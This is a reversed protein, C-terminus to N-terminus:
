KTGENFYYLMLREKENRPDNYWFLPQGGMREYFKKAPVNKERIGVLFRKNPTNEVVKQWISRINDSNRYNPSVFFISLNPCEPAEDFLTFMAARDGTPALIEYTRSRDDFQHVELDYAVCAELGQGAKAHYKDLFETDQAFYYMLTEMLRGKTCTLTDM